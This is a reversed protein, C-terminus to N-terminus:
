TASVLFNFTTVLQGGISWDEKWVGADSTGFSGTTEFTGGSQITGITESGIDAGDVYAHVTIAEGPNGRAQILWQDSVRFNPSGYVTLNTLVLSRGTTGSGPAPTGTGGAGGPSFASSPITPTTLVPAGIPPVFATPPDTWAEAPAAATATDLLGGANALAAVLGPEDDLIPIFAQRVIEAAAGDLDIGLVADDVLDAITVATIMAVDIDTIVSDITLYQDDIFAGFQYNALAPALAQPDFRAFPGRQYPM